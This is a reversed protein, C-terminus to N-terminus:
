HCLGQRGICPVYSIWTLDRPRSSGRSCALVVWELVRAQSTGHVSSGPPSWDMSACLIRCSQLLKACMWMLLGSIASLQPKKKGRSIDALIENWVTRWATYEWDEYKCVSEEELEFRSNRKRTFKGNLNAYQIKWSFIKGKHNRARNSNEKEYSM